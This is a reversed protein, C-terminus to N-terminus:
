DSTAQGGGNVARLPEEVQNAEQNAEVAEDLLDTLAWLVNSRVEQSVGTFGPPYQNNLVADHEDTEVISAMTAIAQAQILAADRRDAAQLDSRDM